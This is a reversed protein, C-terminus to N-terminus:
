SLRDLYTDASSSWPDATRRPGARTRVLLHEPRAALDALLVGGGPTELLVDVRAPVAAEALAARLEVAEDPLLRRDQRLILDLDSSPTAAAVGTAIEFGISGGPGWRRGRCALVIAVRALAALAPVAAKREREIVLPSAALDEPSLRDAVESVALFAAFRQQRTVGRVGVPMMGDRVHGRRVVVWPTRRLVPEVWSPVPADVTLAIPERLRILDHTPAPNGPMVVREM